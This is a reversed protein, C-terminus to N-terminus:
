IDQWLNCNFGSPISNLESLLRSAFRPLLFPSVSLCPPVLLVTYINGDKGTKKPTSDRFILVWIMILIASTSFLSFFSPCKKLSATPNKITFHKFVNEKSHLIKILNRKQTPQSWLVRLRSIQTKTSTRDM